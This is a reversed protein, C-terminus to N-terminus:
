EGTGQTEGDSISHEVQGLGAHSEKPILGIQKLGQARPDSKGGRGGGCSGVQGLFNQRRGGWNNCTGKRRGWLKEPMASCSYRQIFASATVLAKGAGLGRRFEGIGRHRSYLHGMGKKNGFSHDIACAKGPRSVARATIGEARRNKL